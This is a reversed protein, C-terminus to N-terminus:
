AFSLTPRRNRRARRQHRPTMPLAQPAPTQATKKKTLKDFFTM